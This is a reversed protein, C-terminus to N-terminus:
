DDIEIIKGANDMLQFLLPIKSFDIIQSLDTYKNSIISFSSKDILIKMEYTAIIIIIIFCLFSLVAGFYTNYFYEKNYSLSIPINFLDFKKLFM